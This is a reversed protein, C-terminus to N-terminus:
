LSEVFFNFDSEELKDETQNIKPIRNFLMDPFTTSMTQHKLETVNIYKVTYEEAICKALAENDGALSCSLVMIKKMDMGMM